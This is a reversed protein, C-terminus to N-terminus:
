EPMVRPNLQTPLRCRHVMECECGIKNQRRPAIDERPAGRPQSGSGGAHVCGQGDATYWEGWSCSTSFSSRRVLQAARPMVRWARIAHVLFMPKASLQVAHGWTYTRLRAQGEAIPRRSHKLPVDPRGAPDDRRRATWLSCSGDSLRSVASEDHRTHPTHATRPGAVENWSGANWTRLVENKVLNAARAPDPASRGRRRSSGRGRGPAPRAPGTVQGVTPHRSARRGRAKRPARDPGGERPAGAERSM